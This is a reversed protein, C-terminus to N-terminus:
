FSVHVGWLPQKFLVDRGLWPNGQSGSSAQAYPSAYAQSSGAIFAVYNLPVHVLLSMRFEGTYLVCWFCAFYIKVLKPTDLLTNTALAPQILAKGIQFNLGRYCKHLCTFLCAWIFNVLSACCLDFAFNIRLLKPTALVTSAALALLPQLAQGIQFNLGQYCVSVWWALKSACVSSM